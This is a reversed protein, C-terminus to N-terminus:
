YYSQGICYSYFWSNCAEYDKHLIVAAPKPFPSSGKDLMTIILYNILLGLRTQPPVLTTQSTTALRSITYAFCM